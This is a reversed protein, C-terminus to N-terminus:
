DATNKMDIKVIKQNIKQKIMKQIWYNKIRRFKEEDENIKLTDFLNM